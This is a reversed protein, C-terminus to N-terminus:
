RGVTWLEAREDSDEKIRKYVFGHDFEEFALKLHKAGHPVVGRRLRQGWNEHMWEFHVPDISNEQCQLWNCPVESLVVQVFGNPWFYPEWDPLCPAPLPGLYAWILGAKSEVPYATTRVRAKTDREPFLTDDFPQATCQGSEDFCWGHYNCRLGHPEVMGYALDARRHPCHRGILGFHGGLDRYLVLEEGMLRVPKTSRADFESIGAIPMWYRRLLAGM